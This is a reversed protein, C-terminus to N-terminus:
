RARRPPRDPGDRTRQEEQERRRQEHEELLRRAAEEERLYREREDHYTQAQIRHQQAHREKLDAIESKAEEALRERLDERAQKQERALERRERLRAADQEAARKRNLRRQVAALFGSRERRQEDRLRRREADQMAKQNALKERRELALAHRLQRQESEQAERLRDREREHREKLARELTATDPERAEQPRVQSHETEGKRREEDERERAAQEQLAKSEEVTPLTERDIDSMFARLDKATVDRLQRGLSHVHGAEDVVVFDRRDGKALIYGEEEIASHFAKATDSQQYLAAFTDKRDRPDLGSREAQQWEAHNFESRPLEPQRNRDRKAHKGPVHEHGFEQEMRASAEEHARYNWSDSALTMTDLDTRQWVVHIHQRGHKEHLVIARPHGELGLEKELIDVARRWQEETMTYRADPDINAHYLGRTGRTGSALFQWDRLAETLDGHPSQLELVQVRENTDARKLHRALQRPGARSSGKVIM